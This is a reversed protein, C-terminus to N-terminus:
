GNLNPSADVTDDQLPTQTAPVPTSPTQTEPVATVFPAATAPEQTIPSVPWPDIDAYCGTLLLACLVCLVVLLTKKILSM